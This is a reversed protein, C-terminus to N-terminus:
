NHGMSCHRKHMSVFNSIAKGRLEESIYQQMKGVCMRTYTWVDHSHEGTNTGHNPRLDTCVAYVREILQTEQKATVRLGAASTGM